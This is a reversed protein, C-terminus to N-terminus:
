SLTGECNAIYKFSPGAVQGNNLPTNFATLSATRLDFMARIANGLRGQEPGFAKVLEDVMDTYAVNCAIQVSQAAASENSFDHSEPDSIANYVDNWNVGLPEGWVFGTPQNVAKTLVQNRYIEEFRFFHAVEGQFDLPSGETASQPSGEGESVINSIAQHADAYENVEFLQGQFYQSDSIQNRQPQWDSAPLQSLAVDLMEYFVGITVPGDTDQTTRLAMEQPELPEVPTEINMGQKMAEESLPFLHVILGADVDGPLPGPYSPPNIAVVGGIANMINCALCMHIMEEGTVDNIRQAAAQNTGAPISLKAYLYPPLTAFELDIATQVLIRVDEVNQPTTWLLKIM